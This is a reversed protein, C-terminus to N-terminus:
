RVRTQVIDEFWTERGDQYWSWRSVVRDASEFTFVAKDMHGHNRSPLNTADVFTFVVTRGGNEFSTAELRPQNKAVCYHTLMLREGDRYFTTAMTEGPHADESTELVVSGGAIVDYRLRETWGKTSRGEWTGSLGKFREWIEAANERGRDAPGAAPSTLLFTLVAVAIPIGM